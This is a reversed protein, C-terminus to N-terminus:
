ASSHISFRPLKHYVEPANELLDEPGCRKRTWVLIVHIAGSTCGLDIRNLGPGRSQFLKHSHLRVRDELFGYRRIIEGYVGGWSTTSADTSVITDSYFGM